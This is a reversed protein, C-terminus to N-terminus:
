YSECQPNKLLKLEWGTLIGKKKSVCNFFGKYDNPPRVQFIDEDEYIDKVYNVVKIKSFDSIDIVLLHFSNDAYLVDKEITFQSCGPINWFYIKYPASPDTNDIVHIGKNKEVIFINDGLNVIGGLKDFKRPSETRVVSFDTPSVYIPSMGEVFVDEKKECSFITSIIIFVFLGKLFSRNRIYM